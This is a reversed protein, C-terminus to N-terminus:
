LLIHPKGQSNGVPHRYDVLTMQHERAGYLIKLLVRTNLFPVQGHLCVVEDDSLPMEASALDPPYVRPFPSCRNPHAPFPQKAHERCMPTVSM